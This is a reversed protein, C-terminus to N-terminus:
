RRGAAVHVVTGALACVVGLLTLPREPSAESPEVFFAAVLIPVAAFLLVSAIRQLRARGAARVETLYTALALHILALFLIYVHSARYLYRVVEDSEHVEPFHWRMFAGTGIFILLAIGGVWLHLQQLPTM